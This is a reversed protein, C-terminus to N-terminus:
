RLVIAAVGDYKSMDSIIVKDGPRLGSKVEILNVSTAGVQVAVKKASDGDPELKFLMVRSNPKGSVPRGVYVVNTLGGVTITADVPEQLNIGPPLADVIAVDVTVTGNAADPHVASVKGGRIEKRDHFAIVAPAGQRVDKAQTGAVTLAASHDSTLRGSARVELKMDGQKVTDLWVTDLTVVPQSQEQAGTM